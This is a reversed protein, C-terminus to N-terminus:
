EYAKLRAACAEIKFCEDTARMERRRTTRHPAKAKEGRARARAKARLRKPCWRLHDGEAPYLKSGLESEATLRSLAFAFAPDFGFALALRPSLQCPSDRTAAFQGHITETTLRSSM